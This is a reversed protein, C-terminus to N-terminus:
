ISLYFGILGITILIFVFISINKRNEKKQIDSARAKLVNIDVKKIHNEEPKLSKEETVKFNTNKGLVVETKVGNDIMHNNSWVLLLIVIKKFNLKPEIQKVQTWNPNM